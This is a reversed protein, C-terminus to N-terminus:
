DSVLHMGWPGALPGYVWDGKPNIYGSRDEDVPKGRNWEYESPVQVTIQVLALGQKFEPAQISTYKWPLVMKGSRDIFGWQFKYEEPKGVARAVAALGESFTGVRVYWTPIVQRNSADIFTYGRTTKVAALGESFRYAELYQPRIVWKGTADIYGYKEGQQVCALGESFSAADDFDGPIVVRGKRDLYGYKEKGMLVIARDEHFDGVGAFTNSIVLIGQRDMFGWPNMSSWVPQTEDTGFMGLLGNMTPENRALLRVAKLTLAPQVRALGQYFDGATETKFGLNSSPIAWRGAMDVYGSREEDMEVGDMKEFISLSPRDVRALSASVGHIAKYKPKLIWKGQRDILGWAGVFSLLGPVDDRKTLQVRAVPGDFPKAHSWTPPLVVKGTVDMYGWRAREFDMKSVSENSAPPVMTLFPFLAPEPTGQAFLCTALGLANLAISALRKMHENYRLPRNLFGLEREQFPDSGDGGLRKKQHAKPCWSLVQIGNPGEAVLRRTRELFGHIFLVGRTNGGLRQGFSPHITRLAAFVRCVEFLRAWDAM